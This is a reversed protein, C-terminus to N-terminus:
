LLTIATLLLPITLEPTTFAPEEYKRRRRKVFRKANKAPNSAELIRKFIIAFAFNVTIRLMQGQSGAQRRM